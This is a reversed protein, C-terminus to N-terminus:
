KSIRWSKAFSGEERIVAENGRIIGGGRGDKRFVGRESESQVVVLLPGEHVVGMFFGDLKFVLLDQAQDQGILVIIAMNEDSCNIEKSKDVSM